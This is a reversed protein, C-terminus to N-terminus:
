CVWQYTLEDQVLWAFLDGSDSVFYAVGDSWVVLTGVDDGPGPEAVRPAAFGRVAVEDPANERPGNAARDYVEPFDYEQVPYWTTGDFLLTENGCAPYYAVDDHVSVVSAESWPRGTEPDLEVFADIVVQRDGENSIAVNVRGPVLDETLALYEGDEWAIRVPGLGAAEVDDVFVAIDEHLLAAVEAAGAEYQSGGVAALPPTTDVPPSTPPATSVPSPPPVAGGAPDPDGCAGLLAVAAVVPLAIHRLPM